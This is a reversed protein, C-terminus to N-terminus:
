RVASLFLDAMVADSIFLGERTLVLRDDHRALWGCALYKDAQKLCYTRQAPTLRELLLGDSTRLATMIMENYMDTESLDEHEEPLQGRAISEMYLQLDSPNWQRRHGDFSHAGAGLGLYPTHNWYGSNHHSRFSNLAFNSLEYHEYGADELRDKLDYYMQRSLEEDAEEVRGQELMLYLPTGEEYTLAYASLHEVGLALAADIDAHWEDLTEGPFGYMLDISVNDIGAQRLRDVAVATQAATHRRRLFRLRADDFTQAGMSVRNVGLLRLTRAYDPTIDDPNCEMTVEADEYVNYINYLSELLRGLQEGTLQSPTGGGLYVTKIGRNKVTEYPKKNEGEVTDFRSLGHGDVTSFRPFSRRLRMERCLADVYREREALCTTSFFGCYVCRSACFPVHIYIGAM